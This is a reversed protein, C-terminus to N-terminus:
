PRRRYRPTRRDRANWCGTHWHRREAAELDGAPWVVVHPTGPHIEQECGPCRYPKTSSSGRLPRVAYDQGGFDERKELGFYAPAPREPARRHRRKSV